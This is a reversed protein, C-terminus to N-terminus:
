PTSTYVYSVNGHCKLVTPGTPRNPSRPSSDTPPQRGTGDGTSPPLTLVAKMTLNSTRQAVTSATGTDSRYQLFRASSLLGVSVTTGPAMM